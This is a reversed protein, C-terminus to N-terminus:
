GKVAKGMYLDITDYINIFGGVSDISRRMELEFLRKTEEPLAIHDSYTNLLGIYQDTTLIRKRRYLKAEVSDFGANLLREKWVDLNEESFEVQKKSSPRYKDYVQRSAMNTPDNERNPFPHNWFIALAGGPRLIKKVNQLAEEMPLWHFATASFVLDCFDPPLEVNCFDGTIIRFNDYASFKQRAYAGLRDGLEIGTVKCAKLLFPLTAQGTGTGIEIVSSDKKLGAYSFIDCFLETPYGPRYRDYNEESKNFTERLEM